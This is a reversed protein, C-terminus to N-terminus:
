APNLVAAVVATCTLIFRIISVFEVLLREILAEVIVVLNYMGWLTPELSLPKPRPPMEMLDSTRIEKLAFLKQLGVQRRLWLIAWDTHLPRKAYTRLKGLLPPYM